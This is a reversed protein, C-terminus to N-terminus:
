TYVLVVVQYFLGQVPGSPELLNLSGSKLVTLVHLHYPQWGQVGAAKVGWSLSLQYENRNSTLTMACGSPNRGQFVEFSVMLFRVRSRWIRLATDWGIAAGCARSYFVTYSYIHSPLKWRSRRTNLFHQTQIHTLNHFGYVATSNFSPQCVLDSGSCVPQHVSM